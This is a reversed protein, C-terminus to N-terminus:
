RSRITNSFASELSTGFESTMSITFRYNAGRTLGSVTASSTRANSNRISIVSLPILSTGNYVRITQTVRTGGNVSGPTWRLQASRTAPTTAVLNTAVGPAIVPPAAVVGISLTATAAQGGLTGSGRIVVSTSARVATPRGSIVGTASNLTLGAPLTGASVAYTVASRFNTPTLVQTSMAVGVTGNVVQNAPSISPTIVPNAPGSYVILNPTGAPVSTITGPIAAGKLESSIQSPTKYAAQLLLAAAGAVHPSAMSTGTVTSIATNSTSWASTVGTGPALIDVCSGRNSYSAFNDTNDTAAVTLANPASSPSSNCANAASNGAAVVVTVDLNVLSQVADNVAKSFGGGLSMNVVAKTSGQTVQTSIWNLGAIVASNTGSGDAGLVRVPVIRSNKAVGYTSGAITGAVHTGHGQPDSTGFIDNVASFGPDVRGALEAHSALVGRDVVFVKVGAGSATYEFSRSLPLDVQDIRDLGWTPNPQTVQTTVISDKEIALVNPDNRLRSLELSNARVTMGKFKGKYSFTNRVVGRANRYERSELNTDASSKFTVIYDDSPGDVAQAAINQSVLSACLTLSLLM